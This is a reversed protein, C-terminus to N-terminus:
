IKNYYEEIKSSLRYYTNMLNSFNEGAIVMDPHIKPLYLTLYEIILKLLTYTYIDAVSAVRDVMIKSDEKKITEGQMFINFLIEAKNMGELFINEYIVSFDKIIIDTDAKKHQFLNQISASKFLRQYHNERIFSLENDAVINDYVMIGAQETNRNFGYVLVDCMQRTTTFLLYKIRNDFLQRIQSRNEDDNHFKQYLLQKNVVQYISTVEKEWPFTDDRKMFVKFQKGINQEEM